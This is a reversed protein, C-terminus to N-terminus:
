FSWKKNRKLIDMASNQDSEQQSNQYSVSYRGVTISSITGGENERSNNVIGAVLITAALEIDKPVAVSRGWKATIEINKSGYSFGGSTLIIKKIPLTNYPQVYYDDSDIIEDGVKVETIEVADDIRLTDTGNGDFYRKVAAADAKWSRGTIQDIMIEVAEIWDNLQTDFSPDIDTLLYNEIKTKTTYGKPM